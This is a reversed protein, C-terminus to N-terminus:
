KPEVLWLRIQLSPNSTYSFQDIPIRQPQPPQGPREREAPVSDPRFGVFIEGSFLLDDLSVEYANSQRKADRTEGDRDTYQISIRDAPLSRLGSTPIIIKVPQKKLKELEDAKASFDGTLKKIEDDKKSIAENLTKVTGSLSCADPKFHEFLWFAIFLVAIGGGASVVMGTKKVVDNLNSTLSAAGGIFGASLAVGLAFVSALLTFSDCMFTPKISALFAFAFMGALTIGGFVAALISAWNAATPEIPMPTPSRAL